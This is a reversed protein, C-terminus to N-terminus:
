VHARGIQDALAELLQGETLPVVAALLEHTFERGIAAGVQAIQKALTLRDLRALLSDHLTDPIAPLPLPGTLVYHDGRSRFLTTYPFLNDTLTSRPPIRIM